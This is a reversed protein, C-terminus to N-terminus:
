ELRPSFARRNAFQVSASRLNQLTVAVSVLDVGLHNVLEVGLTQLKDALVLGTLTHLNDLHGVVRVKNTDLVMGLQQGTGELGRRGKSAKDQRGSATKLLVKRHQLKDKKDETDGETHAKKIYLLLILQTNM